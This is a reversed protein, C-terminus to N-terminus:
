RILHSIKRFVDTGAEKLLQFLIMETTCVFVGSQRMREIGYQRNLTTRSSIADAVLHITYGEQLADLATNLVCIHAEAGALILHDANLNKLEKSFIENGLCSFSVKEILLDDPEKHVQVITSGLGKPYQETFIIPIGLIRAGDILINVQTILKEGDEIVPLLREQVDIIILATKEKTPIATNNQKM